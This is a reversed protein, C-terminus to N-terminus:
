DGDAAKLIRWDSEILGLITRCTLGKYRVQNLSPLAEGFDTCGAVNVVLVISRDDIM